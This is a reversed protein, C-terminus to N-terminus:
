ILSSISAKDNAPVSSTFVQLLWSTIPVAWTTRLSGRCPPLLIHLPACHFRHSCLSLKVDTGWPVAIGWSSEGLTVQRGVLNELVPPM